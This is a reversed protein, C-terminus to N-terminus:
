EEESEVEKPPLKQKLEFFRTKIAQIDAYMVDNLEIETQKGKKHTVTVSLMGVDIDEIDKTKIKTLSAKPGLQFQLKNDSFEIYRTKKVRIIQLAQLMYGISLIMYLIPNLSEYNLGFSGRMIMVTLMTAGALFVILSGWFYVKRTKSNELPDKILDIRLKDM